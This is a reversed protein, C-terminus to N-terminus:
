VLQGSTSLFSQIECVWAEWVVGFAAFRLWCYGSLEQGRCIRSVSSGTHIKKSYSNKAESRNSLESFRNKQLDGVGGRHIKKEAGEKKIVVVPVLPFV